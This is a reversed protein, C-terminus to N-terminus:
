KSLMHPTQSPPNQPDLKCMEQLSLSRRYLMLAFTDRGNATHSYEQQLRRFAIIADEYRDAEALWTAAMTELAEHGEPFLGVSDRLLEDDKFHTVSRKRGASIWDPPSFVRWQGASISAISNPKLVDSQLLPANETAGLEEVDNDSVMLALRKCAAPYYSQRKANTGRALSQLFIRYRKPVKSKSFCGEIENIDM